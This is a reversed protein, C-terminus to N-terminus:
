EIPSKGGPTIIDDEEAYYSADQKWHGNAQRNHTIDVQIM